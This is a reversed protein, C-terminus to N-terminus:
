PVASYGLPGSIKGSAKEVKTGTLQGARDFSSPLGKEGQSKRAVHSPRSLRFSCAAPRYLACGATSPSLWADHHCLLAAPLLLGGKITQFAHRM